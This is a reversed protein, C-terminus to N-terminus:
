DNYFKPQRGDIDKFGYEKALKGATLLKGTKSKVNPDTALAVVARGVYRPSESEKLAEFSRWNQEDTQFYRLVLETRMWGPALAIVSINYQNAHLDHAMGFTMRNIATKATDYYVNRGCLDKNLDWDCSEAYVTTNIILGQNQKMMLPLALRTTAMHSRLGVTLMKDFRALPQEWFPAGFSEHSIYNEYGGWANNVLIDLRGHERKVREFLWESDADNTHDCSVAIGKGGHATVVQATEDITEPGGSASRGTVYVTAGAVGLELAIGRGAGRSAGTVVAIKGSLRSM